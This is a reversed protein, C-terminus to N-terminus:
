IDELVLKIAWPPVKPETGNESRIFVFASKFAPPAAPFKGVGDTFYILGKLDSFAGESLLEGVYSFVPRFDTGGGGKFSLERLYRDFDERDTILSVDQIKTDCQLIYLNIKTFFNETSKLINYTKNLFKQVLSGAVSGSTDIAIVFDKIRKEEKYELPEILPMNEYLSLGYTYYVYDFEDDNLRLNEGLVAFKKLFETYDYRERNLDRLSTLMNGARSGQKASFTELDTQIHRSIDEWSRMLEGSEPPSVSVGDDGTDPLGESNKFYWTSHEDAFFIDRLSRVTKEDANDKLCRYLEEATFPKVKEKYPTLAAAMSAAKGVDFFALDMELIMGEAAMDCALNWYPRDIGVGVFIHRFICHILVHMLDRSVCNPENAYKKLLCAPDYYLFEGDTAFPIESPKFRLRFLASDLFRMNVLIASYANELIQESIKQAKLPSKEGEKM